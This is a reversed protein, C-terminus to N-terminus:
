YVYHTIKPYWSIHRMGDQIKNIEAAHEKAAKLQQALLVLRCDTQTQGAFDPLAGTSSQLTPAYSM